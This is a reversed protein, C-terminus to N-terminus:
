QEFFFLNLYMHTYHTIHMQTCKYLWTHSLLHALTNVTIISASTKPTWQVKMEIKSNVQFRELYFTPFLSCLPDPECPWLFLREWCQTITNHSWQEFETDSISFVLNIKHGCHLSTYISTWCLGWCPLHSVKHLTKPVGRLEPSWHQGPPQRGPPQSGDDTPSTAWILSIHMPQCM